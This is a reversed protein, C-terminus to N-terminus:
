SEWELSKKKGAKTPIVVLHEKSAAYDKDSILGAKWDMFTAATQADKIARVLTEPKERIATIWAQVYAKHNDIHRPEPETQLHFGMFCSSMEAVLEEYAYAETGFMGQDRDLRSSHGTAHSLEHLATANFAHM